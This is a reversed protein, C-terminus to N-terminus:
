RLVTARYEGRVEDGVRYPVEAVGLRGDPALALAPYAPGDTACFARPTGDGGLAFVLAGFLDQRGDDRPGAGVALETPGVALGGLAHPGRWAWRRELGGPGLAYAFLANEEPHARPPRLEPAAAGYPIQTRSTVAFVEDGAARVYGISAAIPVDGALVPTGLGVDQEVGGRLALRGDGLGIVVRDGRVALGEWVFTSRYHPSLPALPHAALPALSTSLTMVGDIPLDAPPPGTASRRLAVAVTDGEVALAGFVADAPGAAPWAGVPVLDGGRLRVLRSANLRAQGVDWGHAGSVLLDGGPLVRLAYAAPLTYVGYPDADDPAPSSGIDDALRYRARESLDRPSLALVLADPSQEAAYVWAGDPSWAVQRVLTESLQRRARVEGTWGDVVWVEGRWTGIALWQGDPSFALATDPSDGGRAVAGSADGLPVSFLPVCEAQQPAVHDTGGVTVVEGPRWPHPRVRRGDALAQGDDFGGIVAGRVFAVPPPEPARCASWWWM